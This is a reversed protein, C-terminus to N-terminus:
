GSQSHDRDYLRAKNLREALWQFNLQWHWGPGFAILPTVRDLVAQCHPCHYGPTETGFTYEDIDLGAAAIADVPLQCAPCPVPISAVALVHQRQREVSSLREPLTRLLQRNTV